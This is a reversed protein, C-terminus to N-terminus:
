ARPLIVLYKDSYILCVCQLCVCVCLVCFWMVSRKRTICWVLWRDAMIGVLTGSRNEPYGNQFGNFGPPHCNGSPFAPWWPWIHPPPKGQQWAKWHTKLVRWKKGMRKKYIVLTHFRGLFRLAWLTPVFVSADAFFSDENRPLIGSGNILPKESGICILNPNRYFGQGKRSNHLGTGMKESTFWTSRGLGGSFLKLGATSEVM